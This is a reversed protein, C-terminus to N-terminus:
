SLISTGASTAIPNITGTSITTEIGTTTTTASHM